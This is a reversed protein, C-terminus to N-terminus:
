KTKRRKLGVQRADNPQWQAHCNYCLYGGAATQVGLQRCTPCLARFHLWRRYSDMAAEITEDSIKHGYKQAIESAKNWADREMHLLTVDSSFDQHGLLAHGLEHLLRVENDAYFITQSAFDWHCTEGETFVFQPFDRELQSILKM